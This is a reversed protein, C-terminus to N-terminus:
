ASYMESIEFTEGEIGIELDESSNKPNLILWLSLQIEKWQALTRYCNSARIREAQAIDKFM